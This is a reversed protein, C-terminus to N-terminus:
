SSAAAVARVGLLVAGSVQERGGQTLSCRVDVAPSEAVQSAQARCQAPLDLEVFGSFKARLGLVTSEAPPLGSTRGVVALALQRFAELHLMGPVHDLPHDFLVPHGPDVAVPAHFAGERDVRLPALVVNYPNHRGVRDPAIRERERHPTGPAPPLGLGRRTDLRMADWDRQPLWGYSLDAVVADVGASQVAFRVRVGDMAFRSPYRRLVTARVAVDTPAPGAELVSEDLVRLDLSQWAFRNESPVDLFENAMAISMQRVVEVFVM